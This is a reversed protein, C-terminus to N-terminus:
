GVPVYQHTFQNDDSGGVGGVLHAGAGVDNLDEVTPDTAEADRVIAAVHKRVDSAHHLLQLFGSRRDNIEAGVAGRKQGGHFFSPGFHNSKIRANRKIHAPSAEIM